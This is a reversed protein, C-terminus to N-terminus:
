LALAVSRRCRRQNHKLKERDFPFRRYVSPAIKRLIALGSGSGDDIITLHAPVPKSTSLQDHSAYNGFPLTAEVQPVNDIICSYQLTRPIDFSSSAM